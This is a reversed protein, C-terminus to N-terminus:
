MDKTIDFVETGTVENKRMGIDVFLDEGMSDDKCNEVEIKWDKVCHDITSM